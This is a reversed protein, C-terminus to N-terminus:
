HLFKIWVINNAKYIAFPAEGDVNSIGIYLSRDRSSYYYFWFEIDLKNLAVFFNEIHEFIEETTAADIKLFVIARVVLMTISVFHESPFVELRYDNRKECFM